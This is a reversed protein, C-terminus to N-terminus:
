FSLLIFSCHRLWLYMLDLKFLVFTNIQWVILLVNRGIPCDDPLKYSYFPFYGVTTYSKLRLIGSIYTIYFICFMHGFCTASQVIMCLVTTNLSFMYKQNNLVCRFNDKVLARIQFLARTNWTLSRPFCSIFNHNQLRFWQLRPYFIHLSVIRVLHYEWVKIRYYNRRLRLLKHTIKAKVLVLFHSIDM